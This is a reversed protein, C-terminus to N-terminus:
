LKAQVAPALTTGAGKGIAEVIRDVTSLVWLNGEDSALWKGGEVEKEGAAEFSGDEYAKRLGFIHSIVQPGVGTQARLCAIAALSTLVRGIKIPHGQGPPDALLPGYNSNLIVVPLDPHSQALKRILKEQFPTYISDWLERGKEQIRELNNPTPTRTPTTTLGATVGEPLSAHFEGLCNITRPIGNFSICKLGVERITEAATISHHLDNPFTTCAVSHLFTLSAPSNMTM